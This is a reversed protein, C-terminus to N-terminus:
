EVKHTLVAKHYFFYGIPLFILMNLVRYVVTVSIALGGPAGASLLVTAMTTEYIGVNGPLVAIIGSFNAAAYAIILAGPNIYSGFAIFVVYITAIEAICFTLAWIFPNRLQRFDKQVLVYDKHMGSFLREVREINLLNKKRRSVKKYVTNVIKPLFASFNVIRQENSIVFVLGITAFLIVFTLSSSILIILPSTHSGLALIFLGVFLLILFSTFTMFMRIIQALTSKSSAVGYTKLRHGLYSFNSVGGSPFINGVFNMELGLKYMESKTINKEGTSTLYDYYLRMVAYYSVGQVPLILFLALLNLGPIQRFVEVIKGRTLVVLLGLAFFTFVNLWFKYSRKKM